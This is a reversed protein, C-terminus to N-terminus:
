GPPGTVATRDDPVPDRAPFLREALDALEALDGPDRRRRTDVAADLPARTAAAARVQIDHALARGRADSRAASEKAGAAEQKATEAREEAREARERHVERGFLFGAAAFALAEVGQFLYVARAWHVEPDKRVWLLHITFGMFAVLIVLAVVAALQERSSARPSAQTETM